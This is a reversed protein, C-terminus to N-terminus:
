DKVVNFEVSDKNGKVTFEMLLVYRNKGKPIAYETMFHDEHATLTIKEPKGGPMPKATVNTLKVQSLDLPNLVTEGKKDKGPEFVYVKVKNGEKLLEFFSGTAPQIEGGKQPQVAGPVGHDHGEGAYVLIGNGLALTLSITTFIKKM